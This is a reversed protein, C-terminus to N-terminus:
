SAGQADVLPFRVGLFLGSLPLALDGQLPLALRMEYGAFLEPRRPGDFRWTLGARLLPQLSAFGGPRARGQADTIPARSAGWWLGLGAGGELWLGGLLRVALRLDTLVGAGRDVPGEAFGLLATHLLRVRSGDVYSWETGVRGGPHVPGEFLASGGYGPVGVAEDHISVSLPWSHSPAAGALAPWLLGLLAVRLVLSLFPTTLPPRLAPGRRRRPALTSDLM